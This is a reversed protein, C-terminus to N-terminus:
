FRPSTVYLLHRCGVTLLIQYILSSVDAHIDADIGNRLLLPLHRSEDQQISTTHDPRDLLPLRM